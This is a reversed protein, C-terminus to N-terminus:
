IGTQSFVWSFTLTLIGAIELASRLKGGKASTM